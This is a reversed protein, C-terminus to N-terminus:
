SAAETLSAILSEPDRGSAAAKRLASRAINTVHDALGQEALERTPVRPSIYTCGCYGSWGRRTERVILNRHGLARAIRALEAMTVDAM